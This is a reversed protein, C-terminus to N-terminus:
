ESADILLNCRIFDPAIDFWERPDSMSDAAQALLHAVTNASLYDFVLLVERFYKLFSICDDIITHFNSNGHKGHIADVVIKSDMEFICHSNRWKHVWRLAEYLSLVEAERPQRGGEIVSSRAGLFAGHDDRAVCAVGIRNRQQPCTADVNIKIWGEPPKTWKRSSQRGLRGERGAAVEQSRRWDQLMTTVMVRITFVLLFKREWIWTNRRYWLGWCHLGITVCRQKSSNMFERKLVEKVEEGQEVNLLSQEGVAQWLERAARCTFLVHNADEVHDNCIGCAHSIDVCKKALEIATPLYM